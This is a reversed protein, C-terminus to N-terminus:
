DILTPEEIALNIVDEPIGLFFWPLDIEKVSSNMM